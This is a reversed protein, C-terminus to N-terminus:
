VEVQTVSISNYIQIIHKDIFLCTTIKNDCLFKHFWFMQKNDVRNVVVTHSDSQSM